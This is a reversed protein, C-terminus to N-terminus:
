CACHTDLLSFSPTLWVEFELSYELSVETLLVVVLLLSSSSSANGVPLSELDDGFQSRWEGVTVLQRFPYLESTEFASLSCELPYNDDFTEDGTV